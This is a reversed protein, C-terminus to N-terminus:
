VVGDDDDDNGERVRARAKVDGAHNSGNAREIPQLERDRHRRVFLWMFM